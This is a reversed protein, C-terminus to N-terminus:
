HVYIAFQNRLDNFVQGGNRNLRHDQLTFTSRAHASMRVADVSTEASAKHSSPGM